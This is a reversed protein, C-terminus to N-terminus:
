SYYNTQRMTHKSEHLQCKEDKMQQQAQQLIKHSTYVEGQKKNLM